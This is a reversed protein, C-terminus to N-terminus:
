RAEEKQRAIREALDQLYLWREEAEELAASLREKEEELEQLRVYDSAAAAMARTCAQLRAELDAIRGDIEDYEKQEKFTFKLKVPRARESREASQKAAPKQALKAQQRQEARKAAYAAYDGEYRVVRGDEEVEFSSQAMKDLFYRDHSVALVAGPFSELYEELVTLTEIDLDNTPEDLFLINPAGMLIGLLFLRRKEGGSLKEAPMQQVAPSFLFRELMQSASIKGEKTQVEAAIDRIYDFVKCGPPFPPTEQTFYGIRVTEGIQVSGADPPIRGSLLNLLTSKGAGNCGVIGIRDERLVTYSFDRIVARDSFRKTVGEAEVTKKGLRSHMTTMEVQAQEEPAERNKLAEYRAIREASKTGRAKPGQRIWQAERRLLAQRKRESAAEMELRQAKEELFKSYNAAYSYLKGRFLEVIRGTVRELFYRDHTVMVLSGTYRLLWDELWAVMEHDLHNTPEDLILVESPRLLAIALAARKKQGGSLEGMPKDFEPLGLRNLISKAEYEKAAWETPGLAELVQSLIGAEARFQMEQPLYSVRVGSSRVVTGADPAEEGALIKLLTSKGTGNQGILGVKESADLYFDVCGLLQRIGFNKEIGEARLLM